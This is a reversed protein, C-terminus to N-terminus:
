TDEMDGKTSNRFSEAGESQNENGNKKLRFIREVNSVLKVSAIFLKVEFERKVSIKKETEEYKEKIEDELSLIEDSFSKLKEFINEVKNNAGM